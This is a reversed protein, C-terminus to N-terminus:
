LRLGNLVLRLWRRLNHRKCGSKFRRLSRTLEYKEPANPKAPEEPKAEGQAANATSLEGDKPASEAAPAGADAPKTDATNLLSASVAETSTQAPQEVAPAAVAETM